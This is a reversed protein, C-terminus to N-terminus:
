PRSNHKGEMRKFKRNAEIRESQQPSPYKIFTLKQYISEPLPM